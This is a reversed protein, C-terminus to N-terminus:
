ELTVKLFRMKAGPPLSTAGEELRPGVYQCVVLTDGPELSNNIRNKELTLGTMDNILECSHGCANVFDDGLTPKVDEASIEEYRIVGAPRSIMNFSFANSIITAM